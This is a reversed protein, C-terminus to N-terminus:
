EQFALRSHQASLEELHIIYHMSRTSYYINKCAILLSVLLRRDEDGKMHPQLYQLSLQSNSVCYFVYRGQHINPMRHFSHLYLGTNGSSKQNPIYILINEIIVSSMMLISSQYNAKAILSSVM